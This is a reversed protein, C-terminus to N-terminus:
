IRRPYRNDVLLWWEDSLQPVVGEREAIKLCRLITFLGISFKHSNDKMAFLLPDECRCCENHIVVDEGEFTARTEIIKKHSKKNSM